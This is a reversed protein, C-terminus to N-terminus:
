SLAWGLMSFVTQIIIGASVILVLLAPIICTCVIFANVVHIIKSLMEIRKAQRVMAAWRAPSINAPRVQTFQIRLQVQALTM